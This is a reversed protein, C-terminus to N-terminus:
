IHEVYIYLSFLCLKANVSGAGEGRGRAELGATLSPWIHSRKAAIRGPRRYAVPEQWDLPHSQLPWQSSSDRRPGRLQEAHQQQRAVVSVIKGRQHPGAPLSLGTWILANGLGHM